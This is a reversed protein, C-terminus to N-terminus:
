VHTGKLALAVTGYAPKPMLSSDFLGPRHAEGDARLFPASHVSDYWNARDSPCFFIVRVPNAESLMSCLYDGYCQEVAADRIRPSSPLSTDDVDVETLLVQLGFQKLERIFTARSETSAASYHGALHSEFGVAQLPVNRRLLAELLTLTYRRAADCGKGGQEVHAINLVRLATPDSAKAAHFAIDIYQPGLADLWPGKYLGDPRNMWSAVPENVVDWSSIAGAYRGVVTSIHDTLMREANRSTLTAALWAPNNANWCLNHGHMALHNRRCFDVMWDSERFDFREVSPRVFGWKLKGLTLLNFNKLVLARWEADQLQWQDIVVGILRGRQGMDKLGKGEQKVSLAEGFLTRSTALAGAAIAFNLFSRRSTM